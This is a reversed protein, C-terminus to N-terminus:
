NEREALTQDILRRFGDMQVPKEVFGDFDYKGIEEGDVYGSIALVPLDPYEQRLHSLLEYGDVRPMRIDTIVLDFTQKGLQELAKSGDGSTAVDCGEDRLAGAVLERLTREDEALLVSFSM